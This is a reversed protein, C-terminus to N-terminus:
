EEDVEKHYEEWGKQYTEDDIKFRSSYGDVKCEFKANPFKKLVEKKALDYIMSIVMNTPLKNYSGYSFHELPNYEALVEPLHEVIPDSSIGIDRFWGEVDDFANTIHETNFELCDRMLDFM